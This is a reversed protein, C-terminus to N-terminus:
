EITVIQKKEGLVKNNVDKAEFRIELLNPQAAYEKVTKQVTFSGLPFTEDIFTQNLKTDAAIKGLEAMAKAQALHYSSMTIKVYLSTALGFVTFIVVLAVMVELLSSAPLRYSRIKAM